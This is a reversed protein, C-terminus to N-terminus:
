LYIHEQILLSLKTFMDIRELDIWLNLAIQTLVGALIKTLM